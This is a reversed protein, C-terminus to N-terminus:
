TGVGRGTPLGPQWSRQRMKTKGLIAEGEEQTQVLSAEFVFPFEYGVPLVFLHYENASDVLKSEPPFIEIGIREPGSVENKIAQYHRWDRVPARDHRHFSVHMAGDEPRMPKHNFATPMYRVFVSYLDNRYAADPMALDHKAYAAPDGPTARELPQWRKRKQPTPRKRKRAM